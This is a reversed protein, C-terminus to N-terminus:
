ETEEEIFVEGITSDLLAKIEKSKKEDFARAEERSGFGCYSGNFTKVYNKNTGNNSLIYILKM